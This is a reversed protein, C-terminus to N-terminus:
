NSTSTARTSTARTSTANSMARGPILNRAAEMLSQHAERLHGKVEAAIAKVRDFKERADGTSFDVSAYAALSTRALSLHNRASVIATESASVDVGAAKVKAIRSEIRIIIRELREVTATMVRSANAARRKAISTQIEARRETSSANSKVDVQARGRQALAPTGALLLAALVAIALIKQKM